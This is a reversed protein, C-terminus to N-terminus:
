GMIEIKRKISDLIIKKKRNEGIDEINNDETVHNSEPTGMM